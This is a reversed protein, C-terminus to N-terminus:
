ESNLPINNFLRPQKHLWDASQTYCDIGTQKIILNDVYFYGKADDSGKILVNYRYPGDRVVFPVEVMVWEDRIVPFNHVDTMKIWQGSNTVTDIEEVIVMANYLGSTGKFYWFSATLDMQKQPTITALFTYVPKEVKLAGKGAFVHESKKDEYSNTMFFTSDSVKMNDIIISSSKTKEMRQKQDLLIRKQYAPYNLEYIAKNKGKYICKAADILRQEYQDMPENTCVILLNSLDAGNVQKEHNGEPSLMKFISITEPISTRSLYSNILPIGSHYSALMSLQHIAGTGERFTHESGLHYFPLGLIVSGRKDKLKEVLAKMEDDLLDERFLNKSEGIQLAFIQHYGAAEITNLLPFAVVSSITIIKWKGNLRRYFLNLIVIATIGSMYYFVWSFRGLSRFQNLVGLKYIFEEPFWRMPILMSFLLVAISSFFLPLILKLSNDIVVTKRLLSKFSWWIFYVLITVIVAFGIYGWGEFPQENEIPVFWELIRKFPSFYPVFVTEPLAYNEFLGSPTTTRGEHLDTWKLFLRFIVASSGITILLLITQLFSFRRWLAFFLISCLSFIIGMLGLYPHILFILFSCIGIVIGYKKFDGTRYLKLLVLIYLPIIWMYSLAYHSKWRFFQPSLIIIGIIGATAIWDNVSLEKFIKWLFFAGIFLSLYMFINLVGIEYGGLFPLWGFLFGLLPQGDTYMVHEGYPYNMGQFHLSVGSHKTHYAFTYYNKIGDEEASHLYTNPSLMIRSFFFLFYLAICIYAAVLAPNLRFYKNLSKM